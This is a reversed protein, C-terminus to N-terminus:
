KYHNVIKQYMELHNDLCIKLDCKDKVIKRASEGLDFRLKPDDIYEEKDVKVGRLLSNGFIDPFEDEYFKEFLRIHKM